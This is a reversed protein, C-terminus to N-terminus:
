KAKVNERERLLQIYYKEIKIVSDDSSNKPVMINLQVTENDTETKIFKLVNKVYNPDGHKKEDCVNVFDALITPNERLENETINYTELAESVMNDYNGFGKNYVELALIPNYDTYNLAKRLILTGLLINTDKNNAESLYIVKEDANPIYTPDDTFYYNEYKNTEMNMSRFHTNLWDGYEIQMINADKISSEQSIIATEYEVPIGFQNAYKNIIDGYLNITQNYKEEDIDLCHVEIPTEHIDEVFNSKPIDVQEINIEEKDIIDLVENNQYVNIPLDVSIEIQNDKNNEKPEHNLVEIIGLAMIGLTITGIIPKKTNYHTFEKRNNKIHKFRTYWIRKYIKTLYGDRLFKNINLIKFSSNKGQVIIYKKDVAVMKLKMTNIDKMTRMTTNDNFIYSENGLTCVLQPKGNVYNLEFYQM